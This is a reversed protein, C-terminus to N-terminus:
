SENPVGPQNLYKILIRLEESTSETMQLWNVTETPSSLRPVGGRGNETIDSHIIKLKLESIIISECSAVSTTCSCGMDGRGVERLLMKHLQLM